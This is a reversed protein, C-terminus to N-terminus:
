DPRNFLMERTQQVQMSDVAGVDIRAKVPKPESIKVEAAAERAATRQNHSLFEVSAKLSAVAERLQVTDAQAEILREVALWRQNNRAVEAAVVNQLKENQGADIWSKGLTGLATIAAVVVATWTTKPGPQTM